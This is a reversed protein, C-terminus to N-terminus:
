LEELLDIQLCDSADEGSEAVLAYTKLESPMLFITKQLTEQHLLLEPRQQLWEVRSILVEHFEVAHTKCM